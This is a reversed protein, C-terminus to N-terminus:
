PLPPSIRVDREWEVTYEYKIQTEQQAPVKIDWRLIGVEFSKPEVSVNTLEVKIRESSSSPIRDTVEIEIESKAFNKIILTYSYERRNKGRIGAKETDKHLLKKETRVDFAERTGIKFKEGPAVKEMASEGVYDGDAYVKAEGPLITSDGNTIEELVVPGPMAYANWYYLRRSEFTEETLTVPKPDGGSTITTKGPVKYAIVGGVSQEVEAYEEELEAEPEPAAEAVLDFAEIKAEPAPAAKKMLLKPSRAMPPPRPRWVGVYYPNPETAEIPRSSATSVTLEVDNWDELTRNAIMALRKIKTGDTRLDVDYKPTWSASMVQYIVQLPIKEAQKADLRVIVKFRIDYSSNDLSYIKEQVKTIELDLKEIKKHDERISKRKDAILEFLEDDGEISKPEVKGMAIQHARETSVIQTLRILQAIAKQTRDIRDNISQRKRKLQRLEDQLKKLESQDTRLQADQEVTINLLNATGLGALRVSDTKTFRSLGRIVIEQEGERLAVEGERTVRAGDTFVTVEKTKTLVEIM